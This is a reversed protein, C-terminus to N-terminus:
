DVREMPNGSAPMSFAPADNQNATKMLVSDLLRLEQKDLSKWDGPGRLPDLLIGMFEIRQLDIVVYGLADMMKRIQRNRGEVLTMRVGNSDIRQVDCPLTKATRPPARKGDRQAITTIVIGNRLREIDHDHIKNDAFVEYVKPHKYKGRLASNPLRGDSTLLILGSTEKDLRGVPYVRHRPRYGDYMIEDIINHPISRDTTCIVGRPKWYKIYEFHKSVAQQQGTNTGEENADVEVKRRSARQSPPPIANIEEWGEVVNGDLTVTDVFPRVKFGGKSEVVRGNVGVRGGAILVDAERRSHTAKFVKNLRIGDDKAVGQLDSDIGGIGIPESSSRQVTRKPRFPSELNSAHFATSLLFTGSPLSFLCVIFRCLRM